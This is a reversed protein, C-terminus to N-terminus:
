VFLRGVRLFDRVAGRINMMTTAQRGDENQNEDDDNKDGAANVERALTTGQKQMEIFIHKINSYSKTYYSKTCM